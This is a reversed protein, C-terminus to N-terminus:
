EMGPFGDEVWSKLTHELPEFSIGPFERSLRARIDVADPSIMLVCASGSELATLLPEYSARDHRNFSYGIAVLPLTSSRLLEEARRYVESIFEKKLGETKKPLPAIVRMGPPEWDHNLPAGEFPFFLRGIKEPEFLFKPKERQSLLDVSDGPTRGITYTSTYICLSGHLHLVLSDSERIQTDDETPRIGVDVLMGYGDYPYWQTQHLLFLEPLSDYNFTLYQSGVFREFFRSYCNREAGFCPLLRELLDYDAKMLFDALRRVPDRDDRKQAEHFLDEISQGESLSSLGFCIRALDGALPYAVGDIAGSEIKADANFGAGLLFLPETDTSM